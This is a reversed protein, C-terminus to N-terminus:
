NKVKVLDAHDEPGAVTIQTSFADLLGDGSITTAGHAQISAMGAFGYHEYLEEFTAINSSAEADSTDEDPQEDDSSPNCDTFQKNLTVEPDEEAPTAAGGNRKLRKEVCARITTDKCRSPDQYYCFQILHQKNCQKGNGFTFPCKTPPKDCKSFLHAGGCNWCPAQSTQKTDDASTLLARTTERQQQQTAKAWTQERSIVRVLAQSFKEYDNMKTSATVSTVAGRYEGSSHLIAKCLKESLISDAPQPQLQAAFKSFRAEFSVINDGPYYRLSDLVGQLAPQEEVGQLFKDKLLRFAEPGTNKTTIISVLDQDEVASCLYRLGERQDAPDDGRKEPGMILSKAGNARSWVGLDISWSLFDEPSMSKKTLKPINASHIKSIIGMGGLLRLNMILTSSHQVEYHKLREQDCLERSNYSLRIEDVPVGIQGSILTKVFNVPASPSIEVSITAGTHTRVFIQICKEQSHCEGNFGRKVWPNLSPLIKASTAVNKTDRAEEGPINAGSTAQHKPEYFPKFITFVDPPSSEEVPKDPKIVCTSPQDDDDTRYHDPSPLCPRTYISSTSSTPSPPGEPQNCTPLGEPQDRSPLGEPQDCTPPGEPEDCPPLRSPQQGTADFFGKQYYHQNPRNNINSGHYLAQTDSKSIQLDRTRVGSPGSNKIKLASKGKLASRACKAVHLADNGLDRARREVADPLMNGDARCEAAVRKLPM